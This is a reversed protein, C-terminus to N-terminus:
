CGKAFTNPFMALQMQRLIAFHKQRLIALHIQRVIALHIQRPIAFEPTTSTGGNGEATGARSDVTAGGLGDREAVREAYTWKVCICLFVFVFVCAFVCVFEFVCIGPSDVTAGGM